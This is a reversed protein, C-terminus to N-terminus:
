PPLFAYRASTNNQPCSDAVTACWGMHDNIFDNWIDWLSVGVFVFEVKFSPVNSAFCRRMDLEEAFCYDFVFIHFSLVFLVSFCLFDKLAALIGPIWLSFYRGFYEQVTAEVSKVDKWIKECLSGSVDDESRFCRLLTFWVRSHCEM